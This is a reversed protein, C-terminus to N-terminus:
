IFFYIKEVFWDIDVCKKTFHPSHKVLFSAAIGIHFFYIMLFFTLLRGRMRNKLFIGKAQNQLFHFIEM